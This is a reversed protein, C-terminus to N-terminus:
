GVLRGPPGSDRWREVTWRHHEVTVRGSKIVLRRPPLGMVIEEVRECEWV